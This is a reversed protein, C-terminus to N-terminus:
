LALTASGQSFLREISNPSQRTLTTDDSCAPCGYMLMQSSPCARQANRLESPMDPVPPAVWMSKLAVREEDM